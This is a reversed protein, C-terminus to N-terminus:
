LQLKKHEVFYVFGKRNINLYKDTMTPMVKNIYKTLQFTSYFFFYNQNLQIM